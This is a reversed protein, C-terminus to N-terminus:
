LRPLPRHQGAPLEAAIMDGAKVDGGKIVIAMVGAKPILRGESNRGIVAKMLGPQFADIQRCPTRLGTLEIMADGGLRLRTAKPLALLDIGRTTV